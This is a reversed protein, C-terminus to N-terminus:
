VEQFIYSQSSTYSLLSPLFLYIWVLNITFMFLWMAVIYNIGVFSLPYIPLISFGIILTLIWLILVFFTVLTIIGIHRWSFSFNFPSPVIM